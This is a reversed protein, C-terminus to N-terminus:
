KLHYLHIHWFLQLQCTVTVLGVPAVFHLSCLRQKSCVSHPARAFGRARPYTQAHLMSPPWLFWNSANPMTGLSDRTWIVQNRSCSFFQGWSSELKTFLSSRRHTDSRPFARSPADNDYTILRTVGLLKTRHLMQINTFPIHMQMSSTGGSRSM